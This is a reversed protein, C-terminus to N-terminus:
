FVFQGDAGAVQLIVADISNVGVLFVADQYSIGSASPAFDAIENNFEQTFEDDRVVPMILADISNYDFHANEYTITHSAIIGNEYTISEVLGKLLVADYALVGQDVIIDLINSENSIVPNSPATNVTIITTNDSDIGDINFNGAIDSFMGSAVSIEGNATSNVSPTFIATYTTGSGAFNSITGGTVSIDNVTFDSTTESLVFTITAVEGFALSSDSASLSICPPTTDQSAPTATDVDEYISLMVFKNISATGQSWGASVYYTGSYPAVFNWVYDTGYTDLSGSTDTAVVNGLNDYVQILFPDFYSHSFIDYTAGERGTWSFTSNLLAYSNSTSYIASQDWDILASTATYPQFVLPIATTMASETLDPLYDITTYGSIENSM